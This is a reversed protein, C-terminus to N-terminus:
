GQDPAPRLVEAHNAFGTGAEDSFNFSSIGYKALEEGEDVFRVIASILGQYGLERLLKGVVKNEEHNTLALMVQEVQDLRVEGWFAPDSADAAVVRRDAAIHQRLKGDSDDVGLVRAGHRERMVTYASTGINGMGLVIITAGSTDPRKKVLRNSQFRSFFNYWRYYIDHIRMNGASSLLFSLAITLSLTASWQSDVLGQAAAIAIVILGFESYNSLAVSSLLATRAPTHLRAM